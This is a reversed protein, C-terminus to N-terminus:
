SGRRWSGNNQALEFTESLGFAGQVSSNAEVAARGRSSSHGHAVVCAALGHYAM